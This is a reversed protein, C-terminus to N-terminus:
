GFDELLELWAATPEVAIREGRSSRRTGAKALIRARVLAARADRAKLDVRNAKVWTAFAALRAPSLTHDGGAALLAKWTREKYHVSEAFAAFGAAERPSLVGRRVALRCTARVNVLAETLVFAGLEHPAHLVAVEADDEIWGRRYAQYICGVGLMGYRALEAARLAGMSAAGIVTAGEELALLIENHWIAPGSEFEGDLVVVLDPREPLVRLLDGQGAPPLYRAPLLAEAAALPLSPGLFVFTKM